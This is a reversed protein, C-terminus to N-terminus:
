RASGGSANWGMRSKRRRGSPPGRRNEGPRVSSIRLACCRLVGRAPSTPPPQLSVERKRASSWRLHPHLAYLSAFGYGFEPNCVLNLHPPPVGTDGKMNPPFFNFLQPHQDKLSSADFRTLGRPKGVPSISQRNNHDVPFVHESPASETQQMLKHVEHEVLAADRVEVEIGGAHAVVFNDLHKAIRNGGGNEHWLIEKQRLGHQNFATGALVFPRVVENLRERSCEGDTALRYDAPKEREASRAFREVSSLTRLKIGFIAYLSLSFSCFASLLM